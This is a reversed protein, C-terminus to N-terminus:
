RGEPRGEGTRRAIEVADSTVQSDM